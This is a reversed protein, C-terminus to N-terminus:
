PSQTLSLGRPPASRSGEPLRLLRWAVRDIPVRGMRSDAGVLVAAPHGLLALPVRIEMEAGSCNGDVAPERCRLHSFPITLPAATETDSGLPHLRVNYSLRPSLPLRASVRLQLADGTLGAEVGALDGSGEVRRFLTDCISDSIATQLAGRSRDASVIEEPSLTGFLEDQRVFSTLFRKMVATQSRYCLLAAEKDAEEAGTLALSSWETDLHALPAPPVLRADRRMGQPVPWDGRHVLFTFVQPEVWPSHSAPGGMVARSLLPSGLPRPAADRLEELAATTFCYTAWHDPHDDAPHPLYVWQPRVKRLLSELDLMLDRGCYVAGQHFSDGYPSVSCGTYHSTYPRDPAWYSNWLEAVGRDPYGLFYIRERPVGLRALAQRAEAQRERAMAQYDNPGPYLRRCERTVAMPFGDGNTVFAVSVQAGRRVADAILGGAGLTEDCHPAVVLVRAGAAPPMHAPLVIGQMAANDAHLGYLFRGCLTASLILLAAISRFLLRRKSHDHM